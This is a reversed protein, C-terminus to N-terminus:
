ATTEDLVHSEITAVNRQNVKLVADVLVGVVPTSGLFFDVGVYAVMKALSLAPVGLRFGVFVVYLSAVAAVSDGAVPLIGLVPDLGIKYGIVPVTIAEDLLDAVVRARELGPPVPREGAPVAGDVASQSTQAM